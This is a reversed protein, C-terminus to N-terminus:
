DFNSYHIYRQSAKNVNQLHSIPGVLLVGHLVLIRCSERSESAKYRYQLNANGENAEIAAGSFDRRLRRPSM